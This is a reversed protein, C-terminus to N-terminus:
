PTGVNMNPSGAPGNEIRQSSETDHGQQDASSPPSGVREKGFGRAGDSCVKRQGVPWPSFDGRLRDQDFRWGAYHEGESPTNCSSYIVQLKSEESWKIIAHHLKEMFITGPTIASNNWFNPIPKNHKEKIKDFLERDHVSKFRRSRQQKIKAVPAVGDIAIFLGKKPKVYDTLYTIYNLVQEIMRGELKDQNKLEPNEALIKFCMPHILCNTDILLYDINDLDYLLLQNEENKHKLRELKKEDIKTYKTIDEILIKEKQFVFNTTKYNKWLWLFFGPVGM